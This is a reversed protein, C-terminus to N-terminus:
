GEQSNNTQDLEGWKLREYLAIMETSLDTSPKEVAAALANLDGVAANFNTNTVYTNAVVTQFAQFDSQTVYDNLDGVQVYNELNIDNLTGLEEYTANEDSGIIIYERYINTGDGNSDAVLLIKNSLDGVNQETITPLEGSIVEYTLHNANAIANAIKADVGALGNELLTLRDEISQGTLTQWSNGDYIYPVGNVFVIDGETPTPDLTNRVQEVTQGEQTNGSTVTVGSGSLSAGSNEIASKISIPKWKGSTGQYQLVMGDLLNINEFSVDSLESLQSAGTIGTGGILVEGLYLLGGEQPKDKNYIFYLADSEVAHRTKLAEYAASSGRQFKVFNLAM